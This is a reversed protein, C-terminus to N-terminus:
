PHWNPNDATLGEAQAAAILHDDASVFSLPPLNHAVLSRNVTIATALQVADYARLPYRQILDVALDIILHETPVLRYETACHAEFTQVLNSCEAPTISGERTRRALASAVEARTLDAISIANGSTPGVTALVWDSGTERVYRKVIASADFQYLAV